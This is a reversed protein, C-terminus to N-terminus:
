SQFGLGRFRVWYGLVRVSSGIVDGYPLFYPVGFYVWIYLLGLQLSVWFTGRITPFGWIAVAVSHDLFDLASSHRTKCSLCWLSDQRLLTLCRRCAVIQAM